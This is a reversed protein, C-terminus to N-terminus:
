YQFHVQIFYEFISDMLGKFTIIKIAMLEGVLCQLFVVIKLSKILDWLLSSIGVIVILRSDM